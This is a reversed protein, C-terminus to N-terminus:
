IQRSSLVIASLFGALFLVFVDALLVAPLPLVPPNVASSRAAIFAQACSSFASSRALLFLAAPSLSTSAAIAASFSGARAMTVRSWADLSSLPGSRQGYVQQPI